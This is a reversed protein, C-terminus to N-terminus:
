LCCKKKVWGWVQKVNEHDSNWIISRHQKICILMMFSLSLKYKNYKHEHRPRHRTIDYRHSRKKIKMIM